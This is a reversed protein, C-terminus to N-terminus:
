ITERLERTKPKPLVQVITHGERRYHLQLEKSVGRTCGKAKTTNITHSNGKKVEPQPRQHKVKPEGQTGRNSPELTKKNSKSTLNTKNV